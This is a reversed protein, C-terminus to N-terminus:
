LSAKIRPDVATYLLDILLNVVSFSIAIVLVGAQVSPYDRQKIADVMLKGIGPIAFVSETIVSGGLMAGFQLGVSTIVPILANRLGHNIIVKWEKQGKARASDMYDQRIVELISSRTMRAIIATSGTAVCISPLILHKFSTFGSVPLWGLKLSFVLMLLLGLWFNPMSTGILAFIMAINDFISYQNVGAIVGLSVGFVVALLSSALSLILTNPFRTKISSIVPRGTLYSNGLDGHVVMNKVYTFYQVFFPDNLGMEDRLEKVTEETANDGLITLAPDGETIYLMSFVLLTVGLIVPILTIIRKLTYRLM